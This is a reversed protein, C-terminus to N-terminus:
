LWNDSEFVPSASLTHIHCPTLGSPLCTTASAFLHPMMSSMDCGDFSDFMHTIALLLAGTMADCEATRASHGVADRSRSSSCNSASFCFPPTICVTANEDYRTHVFAVDFSRVAASSASAVCYLRGTATTLRPLPAAIALATTREAAQEM